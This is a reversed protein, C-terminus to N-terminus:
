TKRPNFASTRALEEWLERERGAAEAPVRIKVVAYFDGREGSKATPLGQGRVRLQADSNTGPPVRLKVTGTLTPVPVQAGLVAEWPAVELEYYLDAGRVEFHPHAALRVRLLLDGAEAGGSGRGGKHPVRIRRGELAGKPIRVTFTETEPEGTAPNMHQLSIQREAGHLAEDLTVMIDGEIDAGPMRYEGGGEGQQGARRFLDDYNAAQGRGARGGFFQEFFDSFGTSGGFHFEQGGGPAEAASRPAAAGGQQWNAGLEDYKKRKAPDGLVENAENIEKFKEEATKKDKAVDPHYKRALKRFAQKIDDQSADRAVGLVAYYDKFDVAM